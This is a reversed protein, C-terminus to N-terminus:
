QTAQDVHLEMLYAQYKGKEMAFIGLLQKGELSFKFQFYKLRLITM